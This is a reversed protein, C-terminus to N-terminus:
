KGQLLKKRYERFESSGQISKLYEVGEPRHSKGTEAPSRPKQANEIIRKGDQNSVLKGAPIEETLHKYDMVIEHARAYRNPASDISSALWPKKELITKLNKNIMQVAAPNMEQYLEELISRKTLVNSQLLDKQEVIARPDYEEQEEAKGSALQNMSDQYAQHAAEAKVARMEAEQLKKRTALMASLPVMKQEQQGEQDDQHEHEHESAAQEHDQEDMIEQSM